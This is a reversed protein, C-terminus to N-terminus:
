GLGEKGGIDEAEVLLEELVELGRLWFDADSLDIGFPRLLEGPSAKGGSELLTLYLPVFEAGKQQYQRYLALVLLEGFAYAYVYGPSHVFHPIYSWWTRYHDLLHVSDGFVAKQTGMWLECIRDSDLEGKRRRENHVADEFRNMSVQRFVTAFIDELKSCLLALRKRPEKIQGLLYRFVLMEGFVSASEATTLPTGSNILGQKGALFQHVGHGLEHALTMIDRHTGSFNLLVYPHASPVTPHAFAGSRKGPLIPAHIWSDNFFKQAIEGMRPSFDRYANLVIEKSAEWSFRDEPLGPVPAYRDYDLLESYGLLKQKLRYYRQVIDYRSSSAAILAEVMKDDAENSLNRARLWHPYNRLRDNISKDLLITNFIHTLIHLLGGLGETLEEAANRRVEREASYLDSLVESETRGAKGFRQGSLIKDFLTNWAMSGVPEKEALLREEIESLMHPKFRRLSELYHRYFSLEPDAAMHGAREDDLQTWELEFFLIDRHLLSYFEQVAQLLASAKPNQTQTAFFLYAFSYLKQAREEIDEFRRIAELLEEPSLDKVKGRYSKAFLDVQERCWAKDEEIKASDAGSYLDELRWVIEEAATEKM